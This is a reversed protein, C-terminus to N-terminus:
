NSNNCKPDKSSLAFKNRKQPLGKKQTSVIDPDIAEAKVEQLVNRETPVM